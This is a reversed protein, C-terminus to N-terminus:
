RQGPTGPPQTNEVRSLPRPDLTTIVAGVVATILWSVTVVLMGEGDLREVLGIGIGFSAWLALLEAQCELPSRHKRHYLMLALSAASLVSFAALAGPEEFAIAAIGSAVGGAVVQLRRLWKRVLGESQRSAPLAVAPAPQVLPAQTSPVPATARLELLAQQLAELSIGAEQGISALQAATISSSRKQDIDAARALVRRVETESLPQDNAFPDTSPM